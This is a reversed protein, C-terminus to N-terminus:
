SEDDRNRETSRRDPCRSLGAENVQYIRQDSRGSLPLSKGAYAFGKRHRRPRRLRPLSLGFANGRVIDSISPDIAESPTM